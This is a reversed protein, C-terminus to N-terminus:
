SPLVYKEGPASVCLGSLMVASFCESFAIIKGIGSTAIHLLHCNVRGSRQSM